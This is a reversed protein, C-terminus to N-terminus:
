LRFCCIFTFKCHDMNLVLQKTVHDYHSRPPKPQHSYDCFGWERPGMIMWKRIKPIKQQQPEPPSTGNNNSNAEAPDLANAHDTGVKRHTITSTGEGGNCNADEHGHQEQKQMLLQQRMQMRCLMREQYNQRFRDVQDPTEPYEVGTAQALERVVTNYINGKHNATICLIYNSLVNVLLFLVWTIHLGVWLPQNPHAREIMPLVVYFFSYTLGVIIVSAFIILFIGLIYFFSDLISALCNWM